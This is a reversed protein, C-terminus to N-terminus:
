VYATEQNGDLIESLLLSSPCVVKCCGCGHCGSEGPNGTGLTKIRKYIYQPDLGIPCVARCEGCNICNQREGSAAQSKSMAVIAYCNKRVPEDM